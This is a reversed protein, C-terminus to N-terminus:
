ENKKRNESVSLAECMLQIGAKLGMEYHLSSIQATLDGVAQDLADPFSDQQRWFASIIEQNREEYSRPDSTGEYHRSYLMYETIEHLTLKNELM